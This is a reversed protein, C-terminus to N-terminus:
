NTPHITPIVWGIASGLAAGALVDTPFHKGAAVRLAGVGVAGGYLLLANRTRHPLHQRRAIVLYSTAAAFAFATHGSPLSLQSERDTAAALADGTYLVPRKRRVLVKLWGTTAATWSATSALVTVNGRWQQASMGGRGAFATFGAVGTLVLDSAVDATSSFPRLAWRDVGPLTSPDCPACSPGGHPLGLAAPLLSLVGATGVSAADGWTVRYAAAAEQGAIPGPALVMGVGVFVAAPVRV